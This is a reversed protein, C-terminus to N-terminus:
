FELMISEALEAIKDDADEGELYQEMHAEWKDTDWLEVRNGVGVWTIDKELHAIDKLKQSLLIRGVKDPTFKDAKSMMLRSFDRANKKVLPLDTYQTILPVWVANPFVFLCGDIGKTIVFEEGLEERLKAPVIVRSKADIKQNYEGYFM